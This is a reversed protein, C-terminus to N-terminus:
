RAQDFEADALGNMREKADLLVRQFEPALTLSFSATLHHDDRYVIIGDRVVSCANRSCFRDTLDLVGINQVSRAAVIDPMEEDLALPRPTACEHEGSRELCDNGYPEKSRPVDRIVIVRLGAHSLRRLVASYGQQWLTLSAGRDLRRGTSADIMKRALGIFSSVIILSPQEAIARAIVAENWEACARDLARMKENYIPADIPPCAGRAWVQLGWGSLRAAENVGDFLHYAHSDGFLVATHPSGPAGFLCPRQRVDQSAPDCKGMRPFDLKAQSIRRAIEAQRADHALDFHGAALSALVLLGCGAGAFALTRARYAHLLSHRRIPDEVFAFAVMAIPVILALAILDAHPFGPLALPTLTLVPWHWLYISYSHRGFWQLPALGLFFRQAIGGISGGAIVAAASVAPLLSWYGPYVLRDNLLIVSALIGILGLAGICSLVITNTRALLQSAAALLGGAAIQWVRAETNFFAHPQSKSMWYVSVAFSACFILGLAAIVRGNSHRRHFWALGVLLLPWAIYFQEEVSLSWFHLVPSSQPGEDFYDVTRGAFRYNAVYTLAAIIDRVNSMRDTVPVLISTALLAAALTLLANPLIRRARRCWFSIIDISHNSAIERLLLRTILFGSIVFFIDVGAFGGAFGPMRAHYLVVAVISVARLGEIDPRFRDANM